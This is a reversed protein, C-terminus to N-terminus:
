CPRVMAAELTWATLGTLLLGVALWATLTALHRM